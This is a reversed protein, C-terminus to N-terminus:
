LGDGKEGLVRIAPSVSPACPHLEAEEVLVPTCEITNLYSQLFTADHWLRASLSSDKGPRAQHESCARARAIERRLFNKVSEWDEVPYQEEITNM